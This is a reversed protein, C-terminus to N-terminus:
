LGPGRHRGFEWNVSQGRVTAAVQRGMRQELAPKWPVLTFGLGDDVMAFRGSVLTLSRRYIGSVREGDKAERYPLGLEGAIERAVVDLERQRLAGLLNRKLVMDSDRRAALGQEVLFECRARLAERLEGGFGSDAVGSADGVLQRDLWTAGVARTLREIPVHSHLTVTGTMLRKADYQQARELLDPPIHWTGEGAREVIGARRLAELRREHVAITQQPDERTQQGRLLALHRNTQYTGGDALTAITKDVARPEALGRAEVVAGTRFEELEAGPALAVYHARGDVGDLVLYGREQLEDALGKAVVRGVVPRGSEGPNFVAMDRQRAGFARQMTRLIDGREGMARLTPELDTRLRWSITGESQALGMETLRQLRGILMTRDQGALTGRTAALDVVGERALQQLRRDLGTWREQGVERLLSERIERETRPGLWETALECARLRMGHGIYDRAIVLDHGVHDRGRLVIHTHPNDTNWHDVAVWDLSVGLDGEMRTMFHRTFARLDELQPADEPSLIFRFQHRDGRGREEFDALDAHDDRPGYAHGKGGDRDVGEREIYRLHTQLSRAGAQKLVVYRAKIVVRRAGSGLGRGATQAAIHGRGLKAGSRGRSRASREAKSGAKNSERLVRGVFSQGGQPTRGKPPGPRVRFREDDSMAM